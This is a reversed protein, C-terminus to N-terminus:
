IEDQILEMFLAELRNTKASISMVTIDQKILAQFLDNLTKHSPLELQFCRSNIMSTKFGQLIINAPVDDATYIIFSQNARTNLLTSISTQEVIQGHHIIGVHKCLQEAEELYHTTLIITTGNTNITKLFEWISHRIEIDVGASPEDLLLLKPQHILGRAIMLRRKMGGSLQYVISRKKDGLGLEDMLWHARELAMPRRIGYFGAVNLLINECTEFYPLNFEQPVVGLSLKAKFPDKDLNHGNIIIQGSTKQILDSILSITTSKGAGNAGLLAFFDGQEIKLNIGKLAKFGNAYTKKLNILELAYMFYHDIPLFHNYIM